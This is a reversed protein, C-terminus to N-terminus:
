LFMPSPTLSYLSVVCFLSFGLFHHLLSIATTALLANRMFDYSLIEFM